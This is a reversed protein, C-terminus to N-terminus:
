QPRGIAEATATAQLLGNDDVAGPLLYKDITVHADPHHAGMEIVAALAASRAIDAAVALAEPGSPLSQVGDPGHVRFAEDGARQVTVVVTRMVLGTAAGVANAVDFFDPFLVDCGLRRAVEPYYVKVPGGVAVVPHSPTVRVQGLGLEGRGSCVADILAEGLPSSELDNSRGANVVTDIVARASRRVTENWVDRSMEEATTHTMLAAVRVAADTSWNNQYDLVHAADSPTFGSVQVAGRRRLTALAKRAQSSAVVERLPRPGNRLSALMDHEYRTLDDPNSSPDPATKAGFPRVVFQTYGADIFTLVIPFQTALLSVPVVREPGVTVSRDVAVRVESDGGLGVTRVDVARVMTRRGGVVAGHELVVPRGGTLAALDTTTGGMDSLVFRDLGSLWAAGVLSAAPGSLVTEIPKNVVTEALAVSGDGKVIMLPCSLGIESMSKSVAGILMTVRSILRANLLTNVARRTSDLQSTLETSITVPRGTAATVLDRAQQEHAPNRVAFLSTIAYAEVRQDTVAAVLAEADLATAVDGNHDHGGAIAIVPVDPFAAALGTRAIMENDFGILIAAVPSGHGEVVANTALTTSVAVLGIQDTSVDPLLGLATRIAETVGVALDGKTTLAKASALVSHTANDIVVADTYTGGTDVGVVYGGTSEATKVGVAHRALSM